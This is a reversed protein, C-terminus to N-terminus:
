GVEGWRVGEKKVGVREKRRDRGASATFLTLFPSLMGNRGLSGSMSDESTGWCLPRNVKLLTGILPILFTAHTELVSASRWEGGGGRRWVAVSGCRWAAVGGCTAVHRWVNSCVAVCRWVNSCLKVSKLM